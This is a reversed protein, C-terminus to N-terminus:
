VEHCFTVVKEVKAGQCPILATAVQVYGGPQEQEPARGCTCACVCAQVSVCASACERVCMYVSECVVCVSVCMCVCTSMCVCVSSM